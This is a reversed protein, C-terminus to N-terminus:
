AARMATVSRDQLMLTFMPVLFGLYVVAFVCQAVLLYGDFFHGLPLEHLAIKFFLPLALVLSGIESFTPSWIASMIERAYRIRFLLVRIITVILAIQFASMWAPLLGGASESIRPIAELLFDLELDPLKWGFLSGLGGAAKFAAGAVSLLMVLLFSGSLARSLWGYLGASIVKEYIWQTDSMAGIRALSLAGSWLYLFAVLYFGALLVCVWELLPVGVFATVREVIWAWVRDPWALWKTLAWLLLTGLAFTILMEGILMGFEKLWQAIVWAKRGLQEKKWRGAEVNDYFARTCSFLLPLFLFSISTVAQLSPNRPFVISLYFLLSWACMLVFAANMVFEIFSHEADSMPRSARAVDPHLGYRRRKM